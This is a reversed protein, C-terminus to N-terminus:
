TLVEKFKKILFTQRKNDYMSFYFAPDLKNPGGVCFDEIADGQGIDFIYSKMRRMDKERIELVKMKRTNREMSEEQLFFLRGDFYCAGRILYKNNYFRFGGKGSRRKQGQIFYYKKIKKIVQDDEEIVMKRIQVGNREYQYLESFLYSIFYVYKKGIIIKGTNILSKIFEEPWGEYIGPPVHYKEGFSAVKRGQFSYIHILKEGGTTAVYVYQNDSAHSIIPNFVRFRTIFSGDLKFINIGVDDKVLVIDGSLSINSPRQLDGPGQGYRSIIKVEDLVIDIKYFIHMRNDVAYINGIEDITFNPLTKFFVDHWEKPYIDICKLYSKDYSFIPRFVFILIFIVISINKM